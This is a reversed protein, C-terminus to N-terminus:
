EMALVIIRDEDTFRIKDSKRPNVRVGWAKDPDRADRLLRYGVAVEDRRAAAEVVTYFDVDVGPKVYLHAPKLYTEYGDPRILEEFVEMLRPNESIQAMFLSVMTNSVVFDDADAVSALERNGVELIESTVPVHVRAKRLIDRLHLLALMTRSDAMDQSRGRQESLVLVHHFSPVDLADLLSRDTVDGPRFTIAMNQIAGRIADLQGAVQGDEDEGLVVTESGPSLYADLELLVLSLRESAGLVLTREVAPSPTSPAAVIVGDSVSVVKGDPIVTDDDESIAIVQDRADLVHHFPPPVLCSGEATCIGIATSNDFASLVERFTRGTLSPLNQIYIESGAFDLLETYVMSLGSQRGTQVLLRSVLPPALVLGAEPGVVIRAAELTHEERIEAVLHPRRAGACKVFALLTRLVVTDAEQNSVSDGDADTEPSLVIVARAEVLNLIGLDQPSLPSGSRTVVKLRRALRGRIEEDMEVKDRDALVVVCAGPKNSNAEALENLLTHIKPTFGLIVTHDKEVVLSRGKRLSEIIAEIGANLIGILASLVFIGGLTAFLMVALFLPSGADGAVSGSDITHMAAMWLARGPGPAEAGEPGIGLIVLLFATILLFVLSIAALLVVQAITGRAMLNDFQYRIKQSITAM